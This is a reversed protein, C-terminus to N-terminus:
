FNVQEVAAQAQTAGLLELGVLVDEVAAQVLVMEELRDQTLELTMEVTELAVHELALLVEEAAAM